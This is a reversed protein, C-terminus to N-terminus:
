SGLKSVVLDGKVVTRPQSRVGSVKDWSYDYRRIGRRVMQLEAQSHLVCWRLYICGGSNLIRDSQSKVDRLTQEWNTRNFLHSSFTNFVVYRKKHGSNGQVAVELLAASRQNNTNSSCKPPSLVKLRYGPGGVRKQWKDTKDNCLDKSSVMALKWTSWNLSRLSFNCEPVNERKLLPLNRIKFKSLDSKLKSTNTKLTTKLKSIDCKVKYTKKILTSKRVSMKRTSQVPTHTIHLTNSIQAPMGADSVIVPSKVAMLSPSSSTNVNNSRLKAFISDIDAALAGGVCRARVQREYSDLIATDNAERYCVAMLADFLGGFDELRLHKGGTVLSITKYFRKAKPVHGCQVGYITVGKQALNKVESRWDIWKTSGFEGPEHPYSDGIIVLVRRSGATWSLNNCAQKLVLEYCKPLDGGITPQVNNMFYCLKSVDCTFDIWKTVYVHSDCYDGHACIALRIGPIDMQLRLIMDAIRARLVDLCSTMAGTTDFSFVVELFGGHPLSVTDM